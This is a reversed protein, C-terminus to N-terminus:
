HDQELHKEVDVWKGFRGHRAFLKGEVEKYTRQWFLYWHGLSAVIAIVWVWWKSIAWIFNAFVENM